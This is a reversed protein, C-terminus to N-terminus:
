VYGKRAGQFFFRVVFVQLAAMSVMMLSEIVSFNFIRRETSRVTSFNRNERTRFYKQNRSITSLQASLKFISEELNTTQEPSAGQRSPLQARQENEVAIEFDVMKEAFTSMENNFCFQYEGISQATFVFDGQREKTGDMVVKGGPATVAFDVDFSGGSQVAFYFAVKANAQEVNTYFCAKENAELRYTLATASASSVLSALGALLAFRMTGPSPNSSQRSIAPDPHDLGLYDDPGIVDSLIDDDELYKPTSFSARPVVAFKIKEFPKGKIGTRKSLREKTEKFIEGPKVVFKFPVGHTRNPERDFNFAGVLRDDDEMNLEEAPVREAYLTSYENIASVNTDDRLEKYLKGSHAEFIKVEQLTKEDLNAKRQLASLLEAVTGNRAVLVEVVEEKTIGESLLTVKFCKKSEYDSLSMDLVEYYLADSRHMTYGYAGYQGNLIQALTSTTSRKLFAKAKGTSAMVPAFRLHTPEVNLHEAVKKSFQDYVMKRSLTLTFEDGDGAKIPAFTVDMRNLLHDYFQKADTYLATPPLESDKITRQFTIIDGDQIESQQFTQKPKMADIMNHKIEEFLMFDTGAPWNMKSLIIPALEQVKQNKRVYVPGVGSLTQTTVDFNKLFVLVSDSDSWAESGAPAVEMWLRFLNGRTGFKACADEVTMETDKIVQDPRTTKNQRSVMVWFRISNVDLGREEAIEEAFERVKKSRRVRYQAPLAPDDAPLDASTLDFSHHSQFTEETLVGINMYLHAEDREKQKRLMEARDEAIRLILLCMTRPSPPLVNASRSKRIYVLMYANMSRKTSYKQTYPQRVGATGNAFEYEGGYNEELVEKETARNVRDDDFRYWHGDKTPKLFAYYHGADLSGSHVLVGHLEYVWSESMDANESLYPAADFEMPFVHRDNVKMMTLANLDYEFRKLHLHLVPPFSEFIVGKKADQLGYPPGADYKNEGELTEVQIYDRFSDDLTKNGRVNLQIDWFDEVRSSEYDVNICSIYTKTKGVFMEPLAREAVTGKMKEELREMLKRSLEQVDQQEFAQRSDWGFSKTLETTSVAKDMTQLNYFLRQLTWASNESSADEETPIDYVAKRFSNTFYLSQLLSNLYCTAGQNRLGVMGTEKKSDYNQFTHWLVGTPDKVVRVYVSVNAEEDQVLPVTKGEWADNFLSRLDYFRTFGWDGEEATFRHTAVHSVYISPDKVNSLVLGFQVCAYWNEPPEGEWAHELYFSAHESHNGYPYFLIRWPFGGCKFVPGHSKKDMKRWNQIHWTDYVEEITELDSNKPLVRAMMAAHPCIAGHGRLGTIMVLQDAASPAPEPEDSGSRSVVVVDTKENPYQEYDDVLMENEALNEM